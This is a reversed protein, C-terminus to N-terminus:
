GAKVRIVTVSHASFEHTFRPGANAIEMKKPVVKVPNTVSNMDGPEGALVEAVATKSVKRAGQLDIRLSQAEADANVVKLIIDGSALDRSATAYIPLAQPGPADTAEAVLKDDVFCRIKPGKLEIRIDYWRGTEVTLPSPAGIETKVGNHSVEIGTRQNGWGGINLWGYNDDDQVHFLILFGEAGGIKRAKVSYTYDKWVASGAIARCNQDNASQRLVGDQAQWTGQGLKWGASGDAFDKQYLVADGQKVQVDKFEAQTLWTGVGVAGQPTPASPADAPQLSIEVPLVVDGRNNGFMKQAYYSPSGFSTLGDYGILNTRWQRAGPNVNVLLPAYSAIIVLDSNRELGTLWAADGLAANMDPTPSGEMSAWEGVFIKPGTRSQNDYHHVDREMAQASRYFHDDVVDPTRSKVSMTAILKLNPYKAKIGDYFQAFRGDYSRSRDFADENGIEVYHIKFPTPHGDAARQAGWKTTVDGTAYEIEDLADQVYPALDPGPDVHQQQLSYGAYVALVPEMNLDECWELFELIGMGDSSHYGWCCRHGPRQSIDHITKKFDFRDAITNGEVYNGGPLRLFAPKMDGLLQMLDIRNGNPRDKFTPPFLSVLSFWVSGPSSATIVLRNKLSAPDTGTKLTVEYRSWAGTIQPVKAAAYVSAGDGSELGVTLPGAFGDASRAYFSARYTTEPRVPIGWYGDNAIGVRQTGSAAAISLKLSTPQADNLPRDKDLAISGTGGGDQVLSWHVPSRPNDAFSRNQILEAYLGGEYAHNIEETMLGYLMPSIKVGPQDVSVKLQGTEAWAPFSAFATLLAVVTLSGCSRLLRSCPKPTCCNM